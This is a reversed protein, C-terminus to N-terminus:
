VGNARGNVDACVVTCRNTTFYVREGDVTPTSCLGEKPWDVVQGGPLKPFVAQWLFKGTKEDFCMLVGRDIPEEDGDANKALDRKNRPRENNTGIFVKGGAVVPGGYSRSGLDVKWLLVEPDDSKFKDPVGKATLNVMNRDPTGGFMLHDGGAGAAFAASPAAKKDGGPKPAPATLAIVAAAGCIALLLGGFLVPRISTSHTMPPTGTQYM